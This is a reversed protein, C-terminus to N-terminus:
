ALSRQIVSQPVRRAPGFWRRPLPSLGPPAPALARNSRPRAGRQRGPHPTRCAGSGVQGHSHRAPLPPSRRPQDGRRRSGHSRGAVPPARDRSPRAAAMKDQPPWIYPAACLQQATGGPRLEAGGAGGEGDGAEARREGAWGREEGGGNQPRGSGASSPAAASGRERGARETGREPGGSGAAMDELLVGSYAEKKATIPAEAAMTKLPSGEQPAATPTPTRARPQATASRRPRSDPRPLRAERPPPPPSGSGRRRGAGDPCRGLTRATVDGGGASGGSDRSQPAPPAGSGRRAARRATGNCGQRGKRQPAAKRQASTERPCRRAASRQSRLRWPRAPATPRLADTISFPAKPSGGERRSPLGTFCLRPFSEDAATQRHQLHSLDARLGEAQRVAAGPSLLGSLEATRGWQLCHQPDRPGTAWSITSRLM